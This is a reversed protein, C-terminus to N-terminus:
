RITDYRITLCLNDSISLSYGLDLVRALLQPTSTTLTMTVSQEGPTTTTSKWVDKM